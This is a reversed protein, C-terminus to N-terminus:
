SFLDKDDLKNIFTRVADAIHGYAFMAKHKDKDM